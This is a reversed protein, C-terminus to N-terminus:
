ELDFPVDNFVLISLCFLKGIMQLDGPTFQPMDGDIAAGCLSTELTYVAPTKIM